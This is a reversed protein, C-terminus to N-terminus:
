QTMLIGGYQAIVKANAGCQIMLKRAFETMVKRRCQMMVKGAYQTIIILKRDCQTIVKGSKGNFHATKSHIFINFSECFFESKTQEGPM